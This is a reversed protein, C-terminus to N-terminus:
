QLTLHALAHHQIMAFNKSFLMWLSINTQTPPGPLLMSSFGGDLELCYGGWLLQFGLGDTRTWAASTKWAGALTQVCHACGVVIMQRIWFWVLFCVLFYLFVCFFISVFGFCCLVFLVFLIVSCFVRGVGRSFFYCCLSFLLVFCGKLIHFTKFFVVELDARTVKKPPQQSRPPLTRAREMQQNEAQRRLAAFANDGQLAQNKHIPSPTLTPQNTKM